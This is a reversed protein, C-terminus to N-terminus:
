LAVYAPAVSGGGNKGAACDEAACCATSPWRRGVRRRAGDRVRVDRRRVGLIAKQWAREGPIGAIPLVRQLQAERGHRAKSRKREAQWNFLMAALPLRSAGRM